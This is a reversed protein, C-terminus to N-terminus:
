CDHAAEEDLRRILFEVDIETLVSFWQSRFFRLCDNKVREAEQNRRGKSLKKNADRYDKAAQLVIANALEDYPNLNNNM